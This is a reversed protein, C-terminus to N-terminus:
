TPLLPYCHVGTGHTSLWAAIPLYYVHMALVAPTAAAAPTTAASNRFAYLLVIATKHSANLLSVDAVCRDRIPRRGATHQLDAARTCDMEQM